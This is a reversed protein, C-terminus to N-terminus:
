PGGRLNPLVVDFTVEQDPVMSRPDTAVGPRM